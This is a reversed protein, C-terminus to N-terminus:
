AAGDIGEALSIGAPFRHGRLLGALARGDEGARRRDALAPSDRRKALKRGDPDVLLGHHHWAPVALGLLALLVAAVILMIFAGLGNM